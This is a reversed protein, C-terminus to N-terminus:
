RTHTPILCFTARCVPSASVRDFVVSSHPPASYTPTCPTRWISALSSSAVECETSTSCFTQIETLRRLLSECWLFESILAVTRGLNGAASQKRCCFAAAAHATALDHQCTLFTAGFAVKPFRQEYCKFTVRCNTARCLASPFPTTHASM